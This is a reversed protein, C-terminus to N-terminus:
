IPLLSLGKSITIPLTVIIYGLFCGPFWALCSYFLEKSSRDNDSAEKIGKSTIKLMVITALLLSTQMLILLIYCTNSMSSAVEYDFM